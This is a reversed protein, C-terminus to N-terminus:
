AGPEGAEALGRGLTEGLTVVLDFLSDPWAGTVTESAVLGGTAMEYVRASISLQGSRVAVRGLM